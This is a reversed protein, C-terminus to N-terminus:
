LNNNQKKKILLWLGVGAEQRRRPVGSRPPQGVARLVSGDGGLNVVRNVDSRFTDNSIRGWGGVLNILRYYLDHCKAPSHLMFLLKRQTGSSQPPKVGADWPAMFLSSAAETGCLYASPLPVSLPPDCVCRCVASCSANIAESKLGFWNQQSPKSFNGVPLRTITM